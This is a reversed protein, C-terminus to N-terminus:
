IRSSHTTEMSAPGIRSSAGDHGNSSENSGDNVMDDKQVSENVFELFRSRIDSIYSIIDRPVSLGCLFDNGLCACAYKQNNGELLSQLRGIAITKGLKKNYNDKKSCRAAGMFTAGNSDFIVAFTKAAKKSKPRYHIIYPRELRIVPQGYWNKTSIVRFRDPLQKQENTM